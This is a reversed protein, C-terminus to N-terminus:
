VDKESWVKTENPFDLFYKCLMFDFVSQSLSPKVYHVCSPCNGEAEVTVYVHWKPCRIIM